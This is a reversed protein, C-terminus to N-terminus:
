NWNWNALDIITSKMTEFEILDIYIVGLLASLGGISICVIAILKRMGIAYVIRMLDSRLKSSNYKNSKWLFFGFYIAGVFVFIECPKDLIFNVFDYYSKSVTFKFPTELSRNVNVILSSFAFLLAMTAISLSGISPMSLWFKSKKEEIFLLSQSKADISSIIGEDGEKEYKNALAECGKIKLVISRFSNIYSIIGRMSYYDKATHTRRMKLVVRYLSKFIKEGLHNIAEVQPKDSEIVPLLMDAKSDHHQHQHCMDKLFYYLQSVAKLKFTKYDTSKDWKLCEMKIKKLTVDSFVTLGNRELLFKSYFVSSKELLSIVDTASKNDELMLSLISEYELFNLGVIDKSIVYISGSIREDTSENKNQFFVFQFDGSNFLMKELRKKKFIGSTYAKILVKRIPSKRYEFIPKRIFRPLASDNLTRDQTIIKYETRDTDESEYPITSSGITSFSLRGRLNPIWGFYKM